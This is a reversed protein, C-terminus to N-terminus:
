NENREIMKVQNSAGKVGTLAFFIAETEQSGRSPDSDGACWMRCTLLAPRFSHGFGGMAFTCSDAENAKWNM